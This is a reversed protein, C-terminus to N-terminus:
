DGGALVPASFSELRWRFAFGDDPDLDLFLYAWALDGGAQTLQCSRTADSHVWDEYLSDTGGACALGTFEGGVSVAALLSDAVYPGLSFRDLAARDGANAAAIVEDMTDREDRRIVDVVDVVDFRGAVVDLVVEAPLSPGPASTM